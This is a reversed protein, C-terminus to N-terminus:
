KHCICVGNRCSGGKRRQALCSVTCASHFNVNLWKSQFSSVDCTVRRHRLSALDISDDGVTETAEDNTGEIERLEYIPGDYIVDPIIAGSVYTVTALVCFLVLVRM